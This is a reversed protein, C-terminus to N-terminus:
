RAADEEAPPSNQEEPASPTSEANASENQGPKTSRKWVADSHTLLKGFRPDDSPVEGAWIITAM